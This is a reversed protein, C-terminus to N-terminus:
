KLEPSSFPSKKINKETKKILKRDTRENDTGFTEFIKEVEEKTYTGEKLMGADDMPVENEAAPNGENEADEHEQNEMSQAYKKVAKKHNANLGGYIDAMEQTDSDMEPTETPMDNVGAMETEPENGMPVQEEGTEDQPAPMENGMESQPMSSAGGVSQTM